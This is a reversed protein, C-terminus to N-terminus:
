RMKALAVTGFEIFVMTDGAPGRYVGQGQNLKCAIAALKWAVDEKFKMKHSVNFKAQVCHDYLKRSLAALAPEVSPNLHGWLWTSDRVNFSGIIQAPATARINFSPAEFTINGDDQNLSWDAVDLHWLRVHATTKAQLENFAQDVAMAGHFPDKTNFLGFM